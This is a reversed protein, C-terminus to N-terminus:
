IGTTNNIVMTRMQTVATILPLEGPAAAGPLMKTADGTHGFVKDYVRAALIPSTLLSDTKLFFDM